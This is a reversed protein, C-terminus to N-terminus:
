IEKSKVSTEEGKERVRVIMGDLIDVSAPYIEGTLVNVLQVNEVTMDCQIKQMAAAILRSRDKKQTRM